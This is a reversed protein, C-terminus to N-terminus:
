PHGKPFDWAATGPDANDIIQLHKRIGGSINPVVDVGSGNVVFKFAGILSAPFNVFKPISVVVGNNKVSIVETLAQWVVERGNYSQGTGGEPMTAMFDTGALLTSKVVYDRSGTTTGNYVRAIVLETNGGPSVSQVRMRLIVAGQLGPEDPLVMATRFQPVDINDSM